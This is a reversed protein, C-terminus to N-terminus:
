EGADGVTKGSVSSVPMYDCGGIRGIRSEGKRREEEGEGEGIWWGISM